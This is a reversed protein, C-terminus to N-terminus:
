PFLLGTRQWISCANSFWWHVIKINPLLFVSVIVLKFAIGSAMLKCLPLILNCNFGQNSNFLFPLKKNM